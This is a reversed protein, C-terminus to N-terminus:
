QLKRKMIFSISQVFIKEASCHSLPNQSLINPYFINPILRPVAISSAPIRKTTWRLGLAREEPAVYFENLSLEKDRKFRTSCKMLEERFCMTSMNSSQIPNLGSEGILLVETFQQAHELLELCIKYIENTEDHNLMLGCIRNNIKNVFESVTKMDPLKSEIEFTNRTKRDDDNNGNATDCFDVNFLNNMIPAAGDTTQVANETLNLEKLSHSLDSVDPKFVSENNVIFNPECDIMHSKLESFKYFEQTCQNGTVSCKMVETFNRIFHTLKLHSIIFKIDDFEKRCKFCKYKYDM